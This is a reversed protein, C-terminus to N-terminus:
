RSISKKPNICHPCDTMYNWIELVWLSRAKLYLIVVGESERQEIQLSM